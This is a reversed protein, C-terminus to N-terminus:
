NSFLTNTNVKNQFITNSSSPKTASILPASKKTSPLEAKARVKRTGLTIMPSVMTANPVLAGSNATLVEAATLPAFSIARLLTVPELMKLRSITSPTQATMRGMGM